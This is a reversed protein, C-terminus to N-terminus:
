SAHREVDHEFGVEVAGAASASFAMGSLAFSGSTADRSASPLSSAVDGLSAWRAWATSTAFSAALVLSAAALSTRMQPLGLL